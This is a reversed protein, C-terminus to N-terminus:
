YQAHYVLYELAESAALFCQYALQRRSARLASRSGADDTGRFLRGGPRFGLLASAVLCSICYSGHGASREAVRLDQKEQVIAQHLGALALLPLELGFPASLIRPDFVQALEPCVVERHLFGQLVLDEAFPDRRVLERLAERVEVSPHLTSGVRWGDLRM